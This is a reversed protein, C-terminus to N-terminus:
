GACHGPPAARHCESVSDCLGSCGALVDRWTAEFDGTYWPDAVEEGPRGAYELLLRIKGRDEAHVRRRLDAVNLSDMGILLDYERAKEATLLWAHRPTFPIGKERLKARTGRHVDAGVGDLGINDSHMAASDVKLWDIGRQLALFKM